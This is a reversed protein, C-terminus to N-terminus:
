LPTPPALIRPTSRTHTKNRWSASLLPLLTASFSLSAFANLFRARKVDRSCLRAYQETNARQM